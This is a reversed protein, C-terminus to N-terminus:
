EARTLCACECNPFNRNCTTESTRTSHGRGCMYIEEFDLKGNKDKPGFTKYADVISEATIRTITAVTDDPSLGAKTCKEIM